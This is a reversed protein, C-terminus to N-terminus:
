NLADIYPKAHGTYAADLPLDGAKEYAARAQQIYQDAEDGQLYFDDGNGEIAVWSFRTNVEVTFGSATVYNAHQQYIETITPM